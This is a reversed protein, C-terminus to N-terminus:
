TLPPLPPINSLLREGTTGRGKERWAGKGGRRKEKRKGRSLFHLLFPLIRLNCLKEGLTKERGRKKERLIFFTFLPRTRTRRGGGNKGKKERKLGAGTLRTARRRAKKKGSDKKRKEKRPLAVLSPQRVQEEKGEEKENEVKKKWSLPHLYLNSSSKERKEGGKGRKKKKGKTLTSITSSL